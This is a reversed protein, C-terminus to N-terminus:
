RTRISGVFERMRSVVDHGDKQVRTHGSRAIRQREGVNKLYYAVKDLLEARCRFFACDQGEKFLGALDESYESLMFTGIAPIEFNRRTYSDANIKSLFCLAIKAGSIAKRYDGGVVPSASGQRQLAHRKLDAQSWGGGFVNVRYSSRALADLTELRGDEEYHGAFVVDCPFREDGPGLTIARDTDPLYYSRLLDVRRAGALRFEEINSPRYVFHQDVLPISRKVFRWLIKSAKAGFPNDNSYQALVARPLAARLSQIASPTVHTPNYFWIIDPRVEVARRLLDRNFREIAPGLLLRNQLRHWDSLYVPEVSGRKWQCFYEFWSARHVECGLSELAEACAQQYWPWTWSGVILIRPMAVTIPSIPQKRM